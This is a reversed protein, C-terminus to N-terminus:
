PLPAQDLKLIPYLDLRQDFASHKAYFFRLRANPDAAFGPDSALRQNFAEAVAPDSALMERAVAEAVYPEMYEKSEFHNNFFGWALLSDPAEPDLLAALLLGNNGNVEVVLDASRLDVSYDEWDGKVTLMQRGEFSHPTLAKESARYVQASVQEADKGLPRARIGHLALKAGVWDAHAAPVLYAYGPLQAQKSAQVQDYLPVKWTQPKSEDYRTMLQGSIESPTRTYAYGLFDIQRAQDTADFAIPVSKGALRRSTRDAQDTLQQWQAGKAATLETLAIITDFTSKVRVPYTKWSHTEVLMSFRNRLAVYSLSFRPSGPGDKFGSSPDDYVVFSPYFPVPQAGRERLEDMVQDRLARGAARLTEAGGHNPEVMISIDHQFQAGNTAHLDAVVLPDWRNLLGMMHQMETSDLKMYDRNLNYNQATTRWGMQEPGRQNPRNWPGFREHGDVSFVPVFLFVLQDLAKAAQRGELMERLAWFGADKGDIEGAHIGGQFLIVPLKQQRAQAADLVGSRSAILLQMPRGEPSSGFTECRVADPYQAAFRQCLDIVEAYRGTRQFGSQEALTQLKDAAPSSLPLLLILAAILYRPM